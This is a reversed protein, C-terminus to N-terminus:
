ISLWDFSKRHPDFRDDYIDTYGIILEANQLNMKCQNLYSLAEHSRGITVSFLTVSQNAAITREFMGTTFIVEVDQPPHEPLIEVINGLEAGDRVIRFENIRFPGFGHNQIEASIGREKSLAVFPVPKVSLKDHRIQNKLTSRGIIISAFAIVLALGAITVSAVAALANTRDPDAVLAQILNNM